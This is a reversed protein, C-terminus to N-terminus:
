SFRSALGRQRLHCINQYRATGAIDAAVGALSQMCGSMYGNDDVIQPVPVAVGHPPPRKFFAIDTVDAAHVLNECGVLGVRDYMKGSQDFDAARHGVRM